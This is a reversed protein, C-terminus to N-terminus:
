KSTRCSRAWANGPHRSQDNITEAIRTALGYAFELKTVARITTQNTLNEVTGTNRIGNYLDVRGDLFM